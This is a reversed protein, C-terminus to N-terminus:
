AGDYGLYIVGTNPNVVPSADIMSNQGIAARWVVAGTPGTSGQWTASATRAGNGRYQDWAAAAHGVVVLTVLVSALALCLRVFLRQPDAIVRNQSM